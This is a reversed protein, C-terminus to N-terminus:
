SKKRVLHFRATEGPRGNEWSLWEADLHDEDVFRITAQHMHMDNESAMNTVGAFRFVLTDPTPGAEARMRPQNGAACYHTLMLTDGDMHYVTVMEHPTGPFLTEVVASGAATVRYVSAVQDTPKANEDLSVWEGALARFRDLGISREAAHEMCSGSAAAAAGTKEACCGPAGKAEGAKEACCGPSAKAGEAKAGCCGAGKASGAPKEGSGAGAAAAMGIVAAAVVVKLLGNAGM